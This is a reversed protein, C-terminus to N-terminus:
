GGVLHHLARWLGWVALGACTVSFLLVCVMLAAFWNIVGQAPDQNAM